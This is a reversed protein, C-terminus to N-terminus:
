NSEPIPDKGFKLLIIPGVIAFIMAIDLITGEPFLSHSILLVGSVYFLLKKWKTKWSFGTIIFSIGILIFMTTNIVLNVAPEFDLFWNAIKFGLVILILFALLLDSVKQFSKFM